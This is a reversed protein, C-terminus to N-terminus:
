LFSFISEFSECIQHSIIWKVSPGLLIVILFGFSCLVKASVGSSLWGKSEKTCIDYEVWAYWIVIRRM